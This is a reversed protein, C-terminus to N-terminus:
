SCYGRHTDAMCEGRQYSVGRRRYPVGRADVTLMTQPVVMYKVLHEHGREDFAGLIEGVGRVNGMPM